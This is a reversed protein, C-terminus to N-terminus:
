RDWKFFRKKIVLDKDDPGKVFPSIWIQRHRKISDYWQNRWHGDVIWRHTWNVPEGEHEQDHKVTPRRLTIVLVESPEVGAERQWRRRTARPAREDTRYSIRQQMMRLTVQITKWWEDAATYRGDIDKNDGDDFVAGLETTTLHLYCLEPAGWERMIRRHLETFQDGEARASSYLTIAMGEMDPKDERESRMVAPCWSIAGVSVTMGHRDQMYLPDAFYLFGTHTIFDERELPEPKFGERAMQVIECMEPSVWIADATLLKHEEVLTLIEYMNRKEQETGAASDIWGRTWRRGLESTLWRHLSLQMEAAKVWEAV